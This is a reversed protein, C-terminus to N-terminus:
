ETVDEAVDFGAVLRVLGKRGRVGLRRYVEGAQQRVTALVRGEREAIEENSMGRLLYGAITTLRPTLKSRLSADIGHPKLVVAWLHQAPVAFLKVHLSGLASELVFPQSAVGAAPGRVARETYERLAAPWTGARREHLPLHEALLTSAYPTRAVERGERDIWLVAMDAQQVLPELRIERALAEHERSNRIARGVHPVLRQLLEQERASFPRDRERYLTLGAGWEADHTLMVALVREIRVGAARAWQYAVHRKLQRRTIMQEDHLVRHPAAALAIRVFDREAIEGYSRLAHEPLTDNHWAYEQLTGPHSVALAVHDAGLLKRLAPAALRVSRGLDLSHHLLEAVGLLAEHDSGNLMSM